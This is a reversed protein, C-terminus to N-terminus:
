SVNCAEKEAAEQEERREKKIKDNKQGAIVTGMARACAKTLLNNPDGDKAIVEAYANQIVCPDRKQRLVFHAFKKCVVHSLPSAKLALVVSSFQHPSFFSLLTIFCCCCCCYIIKWVIHKQKM